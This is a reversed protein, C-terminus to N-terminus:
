VPLKELETEKESHPASTQQQTVVAPLRRNKECGNRKRRKIRRRLSKIAFYFLYTIWMPIGTMFLQAVIPIAALDSDPQKLSLQLLVFAVGPNQLATEISVAVVQPRGLGFFVAVVAGLVYGAMAISLGALTIWWTLHSFVYQSIWIAGSIVITMFIITMPKMIKKLVAALGPKYKQIALGIGLTVSLSVLSIMLNAYPITVNAERFMERGLTFIWLPM